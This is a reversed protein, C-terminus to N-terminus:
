AAFERIIEGNEAIRTVCSSMFEEAKDEGQDRVLQAYSNNYLQSGENMLSELSVGKNKNRIMTYAMYDRMQALIESDNEIIHSTRKMYSIYYILKRVTEFFAMIGYLFFCGVAKIMGIVLSLVFNGTSVFFGPISSIYRKVFNLVSGGIAAFLVTYMLTITFDTRSTATFGVITGIVVGIIFKIFQTKITSYNAQLTALNTDVLEETCDFCLHEGAYEGAEVGYSDCCDQCLPKGCRVCRGVAPEDSHYACTIGNHHASVPPSFVPINNTDPAQFVPIVASDQMKSVSVNSTDQPANFTPIDSNSQPANFTPIDNNGQPANFTPIDSNGQPANFTPIDSNSQPANFIPIDETSQPPNFVPIDNNTSPVFSPNDNGPISRSSSPITSENDGSSLSRNLNNAPRVVKVGCYVCFNSDDDIRKGCQNCFM